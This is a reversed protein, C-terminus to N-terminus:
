KQNLDVVTTKDGLRNLGTDQVRAFGRELYRNIYQESPQKGEAIINGGCVFWPSLYFQGDVFCIKAPELQFYEFLTRCEKVNQDLFWIKLRAGDEKRVLEFTRKLCCPLRTQKSAFVM